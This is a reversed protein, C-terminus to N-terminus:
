EFWDTELFLQYRCREEGIPWQCGQKEKYKYYSIDLNIFWQFNTSCVVIDHPYDRSLCM